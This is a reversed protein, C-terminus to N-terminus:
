PKIVSVIGTTNVKLLDSGSTYSQIFQDKHDMIEYQKTVPLPIFAKIKM